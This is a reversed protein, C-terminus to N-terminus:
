QRRCLLKTNSSFIRKKPIQQLGLNGGVGTNERESFVNGAPGIRKKPIQQLRTKQSHQKVALRYIKLVSLPSMILGCMRSEGACMDM